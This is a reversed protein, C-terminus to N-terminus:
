EVSVTEGINARLVIEEQMSVLKVRVDITWRGADIDAQTNSTWPDVVFARIHGARLEDELFSRVAAVFSGTWVGLTQEALDLDLPREVMEEAAGAIAAVLYDTTRRSFIRTRGSSATTVGRRLIAGLRTTIFWPAIGAENLSDLTSQSASEDELGTLGALLDTTGQRKGAGGPSVWPDVSAILAAAFANGDVEVDGASSAYWNTTKVRPWTYVCRDDTYSAVYSQAESASQGDVTCLAALGKDTAQVYALLGANVADLLGSPVEAAFVVDVDVSGGYFVRLGKVSDAAGVYDTAVATGDLGGALAEANGSSPMATPSSSTVDVYPDDVLAVTTTNLNAYTASYATGITIVLNRHESNGDTAATWQRKISTGLAGQHKATVTVTGTGAADQKSAKVANTADVRVVKLGGRPFLPKNLLALIAPYTVYDKAAAFHAPYFAALFEAPTTVTVVESVAGWPLAAVMGLAAAADGRISNVPQLEWINVGYGVEGLSSVNRILSGGM